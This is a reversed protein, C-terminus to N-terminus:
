KKVSKSQLHSFFLNQVSHYCANGSYLKRKIEEQILNQNTVTTGLYRFQVANEFSRYSDRHKSKARCELWSVAVYVFRLINV